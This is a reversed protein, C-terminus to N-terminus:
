VLNLIYVALWNAAYSDMQIGVMAHCSSKGPLGYRPVRKNEQPSVFSYAM